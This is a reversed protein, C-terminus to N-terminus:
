WELYMYMDMFSDTLQQSVIGNPFKEIGTELNLYIKM